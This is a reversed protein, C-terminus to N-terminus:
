AAGKPDDNGFDAEAQANAENWDDIAKNGAAVAEFVTSVTAIPLGEVDRVLFESGNRIVDFRGGAYRCVRVVSGRMAHECVEATIKDATSSCWWVHRVPARQSPRFPFYPRRTM